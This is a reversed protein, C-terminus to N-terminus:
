FVSIQSWTQLNHLLYINFSQTFDRILNQTFLKYEKMEHIYNNEMKKKKKQKM